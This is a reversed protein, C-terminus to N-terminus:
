LQKRMEVIIYDGTDTERGTKEFGNNTWFSNAEVNDKICGLMSSSFGINRFVKILADIIKKGVGQGQMDKNPPLLTFSELINEMTPEMRKYRYYTTNAKCFDYLEQLDDVRLRKVRYEVLEQEVEKIVDINNLDCM